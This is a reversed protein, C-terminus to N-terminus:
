DFKIYLTDDNVEPLEDVVQVKTGLNSNVLSNFARYFEVLGSEDIVPQNRPVIFSGTFTTDAFNTAGSTTSTINIEVNNVGYEYSVTSGCDVYESGEYSFEIDDTYTDEYENYTMVLTINNDTLTTAEEDDLYMRMLGFTIEDNEISYDVEIRATDIFAQTASESSSVTLDVHTGTGELRAM